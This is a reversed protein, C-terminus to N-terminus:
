ENEDSWDLAQGCYGCFPRSGRILTRCNPCVIEFVKKPIQKEIAEIALDMCMPAAGAIEIFYEKLATLDHIAEENTMKHAM